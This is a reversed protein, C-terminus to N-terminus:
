LTNALQEKIKELEDKMQVVIHQISSHNAKSGITNIERGMEQSIFNLKRGKISKQNNLNELFYKCHQKLRVQEETIDMKELYYILEQEFRNEDIASKVVHEELNQRLRERMRKKREEIFPELADLLDKITTVRLTFDQELVEGEVRRYEDLKKISEKIAQTLIEWEKEDLTNANPVVINPMRIITQMIDGQEINLEERVSALENFYSKFLSRNFAFNDDGGLNVMDINVEMKGRKVLPTIIQRIELEKVRYCQATKLKLDLYKSNLSKVEVTITKQQYNVETRGFGTMSLLM